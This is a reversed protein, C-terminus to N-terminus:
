KIWGTWTPKVGDLGSNEIYGIKKRCHVEVKNPVDCQLLLIHEPYNTFKIVIMRRSYSSKTYKVSYGLHPKDIFQGRWMQFLIIQEAHDMVFQLREAETM